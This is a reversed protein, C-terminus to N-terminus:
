ARRFHPEDQEWKWDLFDLYAKGAHAEALRPELEMMKDVCARSSPGPNAVYIEYLGNYAMAFGPDIEIARKFHAIGQAFGEGTDRRACHVGERYEKNA